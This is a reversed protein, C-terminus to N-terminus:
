ATPLELSWFSGDRMAPPDISAIAASAATRLGKPIDGNLYADPGGLLLTEAVLERYALLCYALQRVGTNVFVVDEFLSDHDLLVVTRDHENICIPNGSGDSGICRFPLLRARDDESWDQWRGWTEFIRPCGKALDGFSLFPAASEPLGAHRLFDEDDDSLGLSGLLKENPRLFTDAHEAGSSSADLPISNWRSLFEDPTM